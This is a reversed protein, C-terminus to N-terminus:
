LSPGTENSLFKHALATIELHNKGPTKIIYGAGIAEGIIKRVRVAGVGLRETTGGYAYEFASASKTQGSKADSEIMQLVRRMLDDGQQTSRDVLSAKNLYGGIGRMLFVAPQPPAYNNKTITASLYMSRREEPGMYKKAEPATMPALNMQWRVGDTFASSGRSASQSQEAGQMSNKNAHHVILVTASTQEKICEDAEIFRTTDEAANENGGRFRSAPDIVILRLNPVGKVTECLRAVYDTPIVDGTQSSRTMLNSEAVMSKVYLNQYIREVIPLHSYNSAVVQKMTYFRRHIEEVDDEAFLCLVAGPEDIQWIGALPIAAAVSVALQLVFQSKGTGGPAIIAGVKGLPLCDKLIMRRPPPVESLYREARASDLAFLPEIDGKIPTFAGHEPHNRAQTKAVSECTSIIKADPLAPDNNANWARALVLIEDPPLSKQLWGGLLYTLHDTREGDKCVRAFKDGGGTGSIQASPSNEHPPSLEAPNLARGFNHYYFAAEANAQPCSPLYFIRSADKTSLDAHNGVRWNMAHWKPAWDSEPINHTLKFIIRFKEHTATHSHTSHVVFELDALTPLIASYPTGDDFDLTMTSVYEVNTKARSTGEKLKVFSIAPGDKTEQFSRIGLLAAIDGWKKAGSQLPKPSLCNRFTVFSILDNTAHAAVGASAIANM